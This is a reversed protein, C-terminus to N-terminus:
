AIAEPGDKNNGDMTIVGTYGHDLAWSFAMRMQAGLKGLGTKVLLTGVGLRQLIEPETSGDTSGGDAIVIDFDPAAAQMRELQKHLKGDENLVFVAVCYKSSRPRLERVTFSPVERPLMM